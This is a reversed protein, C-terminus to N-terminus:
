LLAGGEDHLPVAVGNAFFRSGDKRVHWRDDSAQGNTIATQLERAPAGNARDEPTFIVAAPQGVIEDEAYGLLRQAGANWSAVRGARDMLFLAYGEARSLADLTARQIPESSLHCRDPM